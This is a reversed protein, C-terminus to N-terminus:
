PRAEQILPLIRPADGLPELPSLHPTRSTAEQIAGHATEGAELAAQYFSWFVPSALRARGVAELVNETWEEALGPTDPSIPTNFFYLSALSARADEMRSRLPEPLAAELEDLDGPLLSRLPEVTM